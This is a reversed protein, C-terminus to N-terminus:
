KETYLGWRSMSQGRGLFRAASSPGGASRRTAVTRAPFHSKSRPGRAHAGSASRCLPCQPCIIPPILHHQWQQMGFLHLLQGVVGSVLLLPSQAAARSNIAPKEENLHPRLYNHCVRSLQLKVLKM